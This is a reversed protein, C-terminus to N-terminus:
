RWQLLAASALRVHSIPEARQDNHPLYSQPNDQGGACSEKDGAVGVERAAVVAKFRIMQQCEHEFSGVRSVHIVPRVEIPLIELLQSRQGAHFRGASRQNQWHGVVAHVDAEFIRLM